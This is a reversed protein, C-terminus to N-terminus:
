DFKKRLANFYTLLQILITIFLSLFFSLLPTLVLINFNPNGFFYYPNKTTTVAYFFNMTDSETRRRIEEILLEDENMRNKCNEYLNLLSILGSYNGSQIIGSKSNKKQHEYQSIIETCSLNRKSINEILFDINNKQTILSKTIDNLNQKIQEKIVGIETQDSAEVLIRITKSIPDIDYELNDISNFIDINSATFSDMFTEYIFLDEGTIWTLYEKIKSYQPLPEIKYVMHIRYDDHSKPQYIISFVFYSPLCLILFLILFIFITKKIKLM